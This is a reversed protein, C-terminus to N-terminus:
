PLSLLLKGSQTNTRHVCQTTTPSQDSIGSFLHRHASEGHHNENRCGDLLMFRTRMSLLPWFIYIPRFTDKKAPCCLILKGHKSDLPELCVDHEYLEIPLAAPKYGTTHRWILPHDQNSDLYSYKEIYDCM